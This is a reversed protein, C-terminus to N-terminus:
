IKELLFIVLLPLLQKQDCVAVPPTNDQVNIKLLKETVNGCCDEAVIYANQIGLPLNVVIYGTNENGLVTGNEVRVTYHVENSCNDQVWAPSVEWRGECKWADSSVVLSDPYLVRPGENDIVKIIQNHERISGTCWDLMTWTRLLKYCGVPGADCGPKSIDIKLDRFTVAINNCGVAAPEGTGHWQIVQNAGYCGIADPHAPYYVSKPNPHGAYPGNEIVNWGLTRPVRLGTGLLIAQDVM